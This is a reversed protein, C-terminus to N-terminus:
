PVLALVLVLSPATAPFPGPGSLTRLLRPLSCATGEGGVAEVVVVAVPVRTEGWLARPLFAGLARCYCRRFVAEEEEEEGEVVVGVGGALMM